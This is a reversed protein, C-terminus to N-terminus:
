ESIDTIFYKANESHNAILKLQGDPTRFYCVETSVNSRGQKYVVTEEIGPIERFPMREYKVFTCEVGLQESALDLLYYARNDDGAIVKGDSFRYVATLAESSSKADPPIVLMECKGTHGHVDLKKVTEGLKKLYPGAEDVSLSSRFTAFVVGLSTRPYNNVEEKLTFGAEKITDAEDASLRSILYDKYANFWYGTTGEKYGAVTGDLGVSKTGSVVCFEFGCKDDTFYARNEHADKDEEFRVFKCSPYNEDAYAKLQKENKLKVDEKNRECSTLMFLCGIFLVALIFCRKKM